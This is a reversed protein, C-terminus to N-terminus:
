PRSFSKKKGVPADAQAHASAVPALGSLFQPMFRNRYYLALALAFLVVMGLYMLVKDSVLRKKPEYPVRPRPVVTTGKRARGPAVPPPSKIEERALPRPKAAAVEENKKEPAKPAAASAPATPAPPPPPPLDKLAALDIGGVLTIDEHATSAPTAATATLVDRAETIPNFSQKKDGLLYDDVQDKERLYFWYGNGSCIEDEARISGNKYLELVKEKSVPGLIHNSKTRILWNKQM